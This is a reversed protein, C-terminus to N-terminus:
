APDDWHAEIFAVARQYRQDNFTLADYPDDPSNVLKAALENNISALYDFFSKGLNDGRERMRNQVQNYFDDPIPM